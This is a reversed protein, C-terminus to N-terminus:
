QGGDREDPCRECTRFGSRWESAAIRHTCVGVVYGPQGPIESGPAPYASQAAEADITARERLGAQVQESSFRRHGGRTRITVLHGHDAWRHVTTSTVGYAAAVQGSTMTQDFSWGGIKTSQM